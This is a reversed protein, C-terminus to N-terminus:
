CKYMNLLFLNADKLLGIMDEHTVLHCAEDLQAWKYDQHEESLKVSASPDKLESLWYVVRKPKDKVVYNLSRQFEKLINLQEAKYGSEEETERLATEFESEDPDVHGKPPTWHHEGYATQLLLYELKNQLRRYILLGAAVLYNSTATM